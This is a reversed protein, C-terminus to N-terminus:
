KFKTDVLEKLEKGAKFFPLKKPPVKIPKGTMPNRGEYSGYKKVTFVGFDRIEIRDGKKLTDSFENFILNVVDTSQSISFKEKEALAAIIDSKTM